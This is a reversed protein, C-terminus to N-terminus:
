SPPPPVEPAALAPPGSAGIDPTVPAVGRLRKAGAVWAWTTPRGHVAGIYLVVSVLLALAIGLDVWVLGPWPWAARVERAGKALVVLALLLLFAITYLWHAWSSFAPYDALYAEGERTFAGLEFEGALQEELRHLYHYRRELLVGAQYYRMVLGLLAFWLLSSLYRLDPATELGGKSKLIGALLRGFDQPAYVDYLAFALLALVWAFYRDRSERVQQIAANTDVYHAHLLGLKADTLTGV